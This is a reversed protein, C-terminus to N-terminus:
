KEVIITLEDGTGKNTEQALFNVSVGIVDDISHTPIEFQVSPMNLAFFPATAGGIKLNANSTVASSTRTDEVIQKLFQATNDSGGRVFIFIAPDVFM